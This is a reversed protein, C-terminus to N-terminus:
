MIEILKLAVRRDELPLSKYLEVFAVVQGLNPKVTRRRTPPQIVRTTKSPKLEGSRFKNLVEVVSPTVTTNKTEQRSLTGSGVGSLDSLEKQSVGTELRLTRFARGRV